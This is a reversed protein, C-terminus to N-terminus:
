LNGLNQRLALPTLLLSTAASLALIGGQIAWLSQMGDMAQASELLVHSILLNPVSLPLVVIAILSVFQGPGMGLAAGVCGWSLLTLASLIFTASLVGITLASFDSIFGCFSMLAVLPLLIYLSFIGLKKLVYGYLLGNNRVFYQELAGDQLDEHFLHGLPLTCLFIGLLFLGFPLVDGKELPLRVLTGFILFLALTQLSLTKLPKYRM